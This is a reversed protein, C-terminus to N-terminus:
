TIEMTDIITCTGITTLEHSCVRTNANTTNPKRTTRKDCDSLSRNEGHNCLRCLEHRCRPSVQLYVARGNKM